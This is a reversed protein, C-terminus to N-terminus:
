VMQLPPATKYSRYAKLYDIARPRGVEAELQYQIQDAIDHCPTRCLWVTYTKYGKRRGKCVRRPVPHHASLGRKAEEHTKGCRECRAEKRCM